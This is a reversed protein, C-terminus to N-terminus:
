IAGSAPTRPVDADENVDNDAEGEAEADTGAGLLRLAEAEPLAEVSKLNRLMARTRVETQGIKNSATDLTKKVSALAEGFKGFETKVARLV